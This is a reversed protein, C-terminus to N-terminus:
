GFRVYHFATRFGFDRTNIELEKRELLVKIVGEHGRQVAIHLATTGIGSKINIYAGRELLTKM